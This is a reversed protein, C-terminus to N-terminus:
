VFGKTAKAACVFFKKFFSNKLQNVKLTKKRAFFFYYPIYVFIKFWAM